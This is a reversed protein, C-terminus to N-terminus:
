LSTKLEISTDALRAISHTCYAPYIIHKHIISHASALRSLLCAKFIPKKDWGGGGWGSPDECNMMRENQTTHGSQDEGNMMRVM